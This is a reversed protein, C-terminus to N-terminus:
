LKMKVSAKSGKLAEKVRQVNYVSWILKLTSANFGGCGFLEAQQQATRDVSPMLHSIGINLPFFLRECWIYRKSNSPCKFFINHTKQVVAILGM